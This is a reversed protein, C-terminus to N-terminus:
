FCKILNLPSTRFITNKILVGRDRKISPVYFTLKQFAYIVIIKLNNIGNFYSKATLLDNGLFHNEVKVTSTDIKNKNTWQVLLKDANFPAVVLDSEGQFIAVKPQIKSTNLTDTLIAPAEVLAGAKFTTPYANLMANSMGGGASMGTIFIKATDVDYNQIVYDIMQKISAVEGKDKKSKFGIFFNFCKSANNIQRQEPYLVIFQLSDALKNWGTAEAIIKANQSCGHLVVVLPIKKTPKQSQPLHIYMKLNGWNKGFSNIRTLSQGFVQYVFLTLILFLKIKKVM